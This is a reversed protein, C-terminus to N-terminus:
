FGSVSRSRGRLLTQTQQRGVEGAGQELQSTIGIGLSVRVQKYVQEDAPGPASLNVEPVTVSRTTVSYGHSPRMVIWTCGSFAPGNPRHSRRGPQHSLARSRSLPSDM